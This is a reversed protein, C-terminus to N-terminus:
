LFGEDQFSLYDDGAIILHDIIQIDFLNMAEKIKDTSEIDQKSQRKNRSPHNHFLIYNTCNNNILFKAIHRIEIVTQNIGGESIKIYGNTYKNNNLGIVYFHEKVFIDIREQDIIHRIHKNALDSSTIRASYFNTMESVILFRRELEM